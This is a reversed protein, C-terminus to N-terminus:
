IIPRYMNNIYKNFLSRGMGDRHFNWNQNICYKEKFLKAKSVRGMRPIELLRRPTPISM